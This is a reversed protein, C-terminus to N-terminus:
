RAARNLTMRGADLWYVSTADLALGHIELQSGIVLSASGGAFPAKNVTTANAWYVDTPTQDVAIPWPDAQNEALPILGSAERAAVSGQGAAVGANTWFVAGASAAIGRADAQNPIQIVPGTGLLMGQVANADAATWFLGVPNVAIYRPYDLQQAVVVPTGGGVQVKSVNGVTNAWYVWTGDSTVGEPSGQNEALTIAGSGDKNAQMVTGGPQNTWFIHDGFLAIGRAGDQNAAITKPAGGNKPVSIVMGTTEVATAYFVNADDVRLDATAEVPVWDAPTLIECAGLACPQGLCDYGCKGCNKPDDSFDTGAPCVPSGGGAGTTASTTTTTSTSSTTAATTSSATTTAGGTSTTTSGPGTSTSAASGGAGAGSGFASGCGAASLSAFSLGAILWPAAALSM